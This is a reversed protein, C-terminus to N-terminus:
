WKKKIGLVEDLFKIWHIRYLIWRTSDCLLPGHDTYSPPRSKSATFTTWRTNLSKNHKISILWPIKNLNEFGVASSWRNKRRFDNGTFLFDTNIRSFWRMHIFQFIQDFVWHPTPASSRTAFPATVRKIKPIKLCFDM